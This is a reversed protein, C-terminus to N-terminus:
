VPTATHHHHTAGGFSNSTDNYPYSVANLPVNDHDQQQVHAYKSGSADRLPAVGPGSRWSHEKKLSEAYSTVIYAAGKKNKKSFFFTM